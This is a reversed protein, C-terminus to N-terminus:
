NLDDKSFISFRKWKDITDICKHYCKHFCIQWFKGFSFKLKCCIRISHISHSHFLNYWSCFRKNQHVLQGNHFSKMSQISWSSYKNMPGLQLNHVFLFFFSPIYLPPLHRQTDVVARYLCHTGRQTLISIQTSTRRIFTTAFANQLVYHLRKQSLVQTLM